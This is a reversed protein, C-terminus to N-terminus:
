KLRIYHHVCIYDVGNPPENTFVNCDEWTLRRVSIKDPHKQLMFTIYLEYESAGSQEREKEDVSDLFVNWFPRKHYTEVLLFLENIYQTNFLMHHTIGSDPCIKIFLPHLRNIHSFYPLHYESGVNFLYNGDKIFDVPKLFCTDADIVLYTELIGPIVLGSYLKLLQQLYWGNRGNKGHIESVSDITFPYISEDVTTCSDITLEPSSSVLYISRYGKVYKKCCDVVNQVFFIDNPGVPIVVDFLM